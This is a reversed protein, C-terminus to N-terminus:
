FCTDGFNGAQCWDAKHWGCVLNGSSTADQRKLLAATGWAQPGKETEGKPKSM